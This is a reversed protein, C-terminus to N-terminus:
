DRRLARRGVVLLALVYRMDLKDAQGDLQELLELMVENPAWHLKKADRGPVQSKWWGLAGEPPGQWDEAAYDLRVVQAGRAVLASYFGEGAVLERGSTACHRTFRQVEYDIM